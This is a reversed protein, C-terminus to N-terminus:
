VMIGCQIVFTLVYVCSCVVEIVVGASTVGPAVSRVSDQMRCRGAVGTVLMCRVMLSVDNMLMMM